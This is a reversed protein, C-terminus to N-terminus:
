SSLILCLIRRLVPRCFIEFKMSHEFYERVIRSIASHASYEPTLPSVFVLMRRRIKQATSFCPQSLLPPAIIRCVDQKQLRCFFDLAYYKLRFIEGLVDVYPSQLMSIWLWPKQSSTLVFQQGRFVALLSFNLTLNQLRFCRNDQINESSSVNQSINQNCIFIWGTKRRLFCCVSM